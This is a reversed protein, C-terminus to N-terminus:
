KKEAELYNNIYEVFIAKSMEAIDSFQNWLKEKFDSKKLMSWRTLFTEDTAKLKIFEADMFATFNKDLDHFVSQKKEVPLTDFDTHWALECIVDAWEATTEDLVGNYLQKLLLRM